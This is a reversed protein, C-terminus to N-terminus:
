WPRGLDLPTLVAMLATSPLWRLPGGGLVDRAGRLTAVASLLREQLDDAVQKADAELSRAEAWTLGVRATDLQRVARVAGAHAAAVAGDHEAIIGALAEADAAILALEGADDLQKEGRARRAGIESRRKTMAIHKGRLDGLRGEAGRLLATEAEANIEAAALATAAAAIAPDVDPNALTPNGRPQLAALQDALREAVAAAYRGAREAVRAGIAQAAKAAAVQAAAEAAAAAGSIEDELRELSARYSRTSAGSVVADNIRTKLDSMRMEATQVM